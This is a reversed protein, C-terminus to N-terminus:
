LGCATLLDPLSDQAGPLSLHAGAALGAARLQGFLAAAAPIDEAGKAEVGVILPVGPAGNRELFARLEAVEKLPRSIFFGAGAQIKKRFKVLQPALPNAAPAVVAGLYLEPAGELTQGALNQGGALGRALQLAQVSDIDYVPKAGPQDGLSVFDGSVLLLERVGAAAAALIDGTLALRNRDRCTLTMVAALGARERLLHALWCPSQRACAQRHDSVVVADVRGALRGALALVRSVDVGLPPDLEVTVVFDKQGLAMSLEPM